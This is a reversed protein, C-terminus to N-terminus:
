VLGRLRMPRAPSATRRRRMRTVIGCLSVGIFFVQIIFSAPNFAETLSMLVMSAACTNLAFYTVSETSMRRLTILSYNLIYTAAGAVGLLQLPTMAFLDNTFM